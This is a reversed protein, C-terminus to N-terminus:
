LRSHSLLPEFRVDEDGGKKLLSRMLDDTMLGSMNMLAVHDLGEEVAHDRSYLLSKKTGVVAVPSVNSIENAVEMAKSILSPVSPEVRSVFGIRRADVADFDNGTYCLEKLFSSHGILKPLRQLTGIDAALGLKVERISFVSEDCCYRIDTCCALDVGAGVCYGHMAAIIPLPCSTELSTFAHQMQKIQPYFSMARRAVDAESEDDNNNMDQLGFASDTFDIGACFAKGIGLLIICRIDDGNTGLTTFAKHMEVWMPAHIANRKPPRNLAVFIVHPSSEKPANYILLHQFQDNYIPHPYSNPPLPFPPTTTTSM